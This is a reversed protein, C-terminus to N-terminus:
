LAAVRLTMGLAALDRATLTLMTWNARGDSRLSRYCGIPMRALARRGFVSRLRRCLAESVAGWDHDGDPAAHPPDFQIAAKEIALVLVHPGRTIGCVMFTDPVCVNIDHYRVDLIVEQTPIAAPAM